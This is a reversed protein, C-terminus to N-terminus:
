FFKAYFKKHNEKPVHVDVICRFSKSQKLQTNKGISCEELTTELNAKIPHHNYLYCCLKSSWGVLIFSAQKRVGNKKGEGCTFL